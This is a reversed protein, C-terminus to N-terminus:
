QLPDRHIKRRKAWNLMEAEADDAAEDEFKYLGLESVVVDAYRGLVAEEVKALSVRELSAQCGALVLRKAAPFELRVLVLTIGGTLELEELVGLPALVRSLSVHPPITTFSEVIIKRPRFDPSAFLKGADPLERFMLALSTAGSRLLPLWLLTDFLDKHRERADLELSLACGTTEVVAVFGAADRPLEGAWYLHKLGPPLLVRPSRRGQKPRRVTRDVRLRDLRKMGSVLEFVPKEDEWGLGLELERLNCFLMTHALSLRPGGLNARRVLNAHKLATRMFSPASAHAATIRSYLVPLALDHIERCALSCELITRKCGMAELLLFVDRLLDLPLAQLAPGCDEGPGDGSG